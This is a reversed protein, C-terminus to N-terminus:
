AGSTLALYTNREIENLMEHMEDLATSIAKLEASVDAGDGANVRKAIQNVNVGIRRLELHHESIRESLRDISADQVTSSTGPAAISGGAAIHERWAQVRAELDAAGEKDLILTRLARSFSIRELDIGDVVAMAERMAEVAREEDDSFRVTRRKALTVVSQRTRKPQAEDDKAM